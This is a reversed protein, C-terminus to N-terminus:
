DAKKVDDVISFGATHSWTGRVGMDEKGDTDMDLDLYM